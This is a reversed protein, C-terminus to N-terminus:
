TCLNQVNDSKFNVIVPKDGLSVEISMSNRLRFQSIILVEGETHLLGTQNREFDRELEIHIHKLLSNINKLILRQKYENNAESTHTKLDETKM